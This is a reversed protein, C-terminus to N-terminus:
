TASPSMFEDAVIHFVVTVIEQHVEVLAALDVVGDAVARRREAHRCRIPM